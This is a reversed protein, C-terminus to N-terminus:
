VIGDIVIDRIGEIQEERHDQDEHLLIPKHIRM